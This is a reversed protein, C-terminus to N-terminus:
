NLTRTPYLEPDITRDFCHRGVGHKWNEMMSKDVPMPMSYRTDNSSDQNFNACLQFTFGGTRTYEYMEGTEPDVPMTTGSLPDNLESLNEPLEAKQQWYNILSWQIMQLDAIKREDFRRDRQSMPSGMILFGGILTVLVITAVIWGFMKSHARTITGRISKLYYWFIAKAVILVALVKLIFRVTIEGGLFTDILVVLDGVIVAGALFLTFYTLWKRIGLENKEPHAEIDNNILRTLWIFLPFLIVLSAIGLKIAGSYPDVYYDLNDPFKKNIIEFVLALFSGASVYLTVAAAIHLFFDKPSIKM